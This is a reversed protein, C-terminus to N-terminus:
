NKQLRYYVFADTYSCGLKKIKFLLLRNYKFNTKPIETLFQLSAFQISRKIRINQGM